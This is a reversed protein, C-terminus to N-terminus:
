RDAPALNTGLVCNVGAEQVLNTIEIIKGYPASADGRVYVQHRPGKGRKELREKLTTELKEKLTELTVEEDNYFIRPSSGASVTIIDGDPISEITSRSFPPRVEIGSRTVFNSNLLFFILLLMVVDLLPAIHMLGPRDNLTSELKM